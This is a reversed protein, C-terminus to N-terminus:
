KVDILNDGIRGKAHHLDTAVKGCGEFECCKDKMFEDRVKRYEKLIKAQKDSVPAIRKKKSVNGKGCLSLTKYPSTHLPNLKYHWKCYGKSFRPNNCDEKLCTKM